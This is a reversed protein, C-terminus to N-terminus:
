SRPQSNHSGTAFDAPQPFSYRIQSVQNFSSAEQKLLDGGAMADIQENTMEESAEIGSMKLVIEKLILLDLSRKNKLQNAVYQLPFWFIMYWVKWAFLKRWRFIKIMQYILCAQLIGTLDINYKKYVAGCFNSLSQLWLSISTGDHKTRDKEPNNLAEIISYSLVDFSLSTLYKFSDVVPGILNDYLQIQSLIQFPM